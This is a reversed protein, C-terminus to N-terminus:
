VDAKEGLYRAYLYGKGDKQRAAFEWEGPPLIARPSTLQQRAAYASAGRTYERIRAWEGPHEVLPRLLRLWKGKQKSTPPAPPEEWVIGNDSM